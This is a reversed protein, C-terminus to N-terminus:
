KLIMIYIIGLYIEEYMVPEIIFIARDGELLDKEVVVPEQNEVLEMFAENREDFGERSERYNYNTLSHEPPIGFRGVMSTDTWQISYIYPYDDYFNRFCEKIKDDNQTLLAAHLDDRQLFERLKKQIYRISEKSGKLAEAGSLQSTLVLKWQMDYLGTTEWFCQKEVAEKMTDSLFTYSGIGTENEIIEHGLARLNGYPKYMDDSFLNRGIEEKNRDYLIVGDKQMVWVNVPVGKIIPKIIDVLMSDPRILMSLSGIFDRGSSMIPYEIDVAQFGEVANFAKSMVPLHTQQVKQVQEQDHIDSGEFSKFNEPEVIIMIGTTDVICCDVIFPHSEVLKNLIARTTESAVGQKAIEQASASFDRDASDLADQVNEKIKNLVISRAKESPTMGEGPRLVKRLIIISVAIIILVVIVPIIKKM